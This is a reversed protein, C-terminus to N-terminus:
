SRNLNVSSYRQTEITFRVQAAGHFRTRATRNGKGSFSSTVDCGTLAHFASLGGCKADGLAQALATADLYRFTTDTGFVLGSVLLYLICSAKNLMPKGVLRNVSAPELCKFMTENVRSCLYM